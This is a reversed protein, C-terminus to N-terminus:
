TECTVGAASGRRERRRSIPAPSVGCARTPPTGTGPLPVSCKPAGTLLQLHRTLSGDSLLLLRWAPSMGGQLSLQQALARSDDAWAQPQHSACTRTLQRCPPGGRPPAVLARACTHTDVCDPSVHTRVEWRPQLRSWSARDTVARGTNVSAARRGFSPCRRSTPPSHPAHPLCTSAHMCFVHEVSPCSASRSLM